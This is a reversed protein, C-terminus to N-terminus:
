ICSPRSLPEIPASFLHVSPRIHQMRRQVGNTRDSWLPHCIGICASNQLNEPTHRRATHCWYVVEPSSCSHRATQYPHVRCTEALGCPTVDYLVTSKMTVALLVDYDDVRAHFVKTPFVSPFLYWPFGLRVCSFLILISICYATLAHIQGILV